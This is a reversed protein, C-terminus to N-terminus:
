EDSEPCFQRANLRYTVLLPAKEGNYSVKFGLNQKVNKKIVFERNKLLAEKPTEPDLVVEFGKNQLMYYM